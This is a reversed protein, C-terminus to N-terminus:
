RCVVYYAGGPKCHYVLVTYSGTSPSGAAPAFGAVAVNYTATSPSSLPVPFAIVPNGSGNGAGALLNGSADYLGITGDLTSGFDKALLMVFISDGSAVNTAPFSFFDVDSPSIVGNAVAEELQGEFISFVTLPNATGTTNNPEVELQPTLVILTV